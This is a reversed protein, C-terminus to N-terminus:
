YSQLDGPPGATLGSTNLSYAHGISYKYVIRLLDTPQM